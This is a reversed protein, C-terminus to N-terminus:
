TDHSPTLRPALPEDGRFEIPQRETLKAGAEEVGAMVDAMWALVDGDDETGDAAHVPTHKKRPLGLPM